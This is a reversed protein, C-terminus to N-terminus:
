AFKGFFRAEILLGVRSYQFFCCSGHMGVLIQMGSM